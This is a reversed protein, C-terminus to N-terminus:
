KQKSSNRVVRGSNRKGLRTKKAQRDATTRIDSLKLVKGMARRDSKPVGEGELYSWIPPINTWLLSKTNRKLLHESWMAPDFSLYRSILINYEKLSAPVAEYVWLIPTSEHGERCHIIKLTSIIDHFLFFHKGFQNQETEKCTAIAIHIPIIDLLSEFNQYHSESKLGVVNKPLVATLKKMDDNGFNCLLLTEVLINLHKLVSLVVFATECSGEFCLIRLPTTELREPDIINSHFLHWMNTKWSSTRPELLGHMKKTYPKCLFCEWPDAELIDDIIGESAKNAICKTCYARYCHPLSCVVMEGVNMCISCHYAILDLGISFSRELYKVKCEECLGGSFLPHKELTNIPSVCAICITNLDIVGERVSHLLKKKESKHEIQMSLDLGNNAGEAAYKMRLNALKNQVFQSIDGRTQMEPGKLSPFGSSAWEFAQSTKWGDEEVHRLDSIALFVGCTFCEKGDTKMFKPYGAKFDVLNSLSVSSVTGHGYWYVFYTRKKGVREALVGCDDESILVASLNEM